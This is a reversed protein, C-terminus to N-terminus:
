KNKIIIETLVTQGKEEYVVISVGNEPSKESDEIKKIQEDIQKTLNVKDEKQEEKKHGFLSDFISM